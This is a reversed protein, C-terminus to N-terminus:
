NRVRDEGNLLLQRFVFLIIRSWIKFWIFHAINRFVVNSIRRSFKFISNCFSALNPSDIYIKKYWSKHRCWRTHSASPAFATRLSMHLHGRCSYTCIDGLTGVPVPRGSTDLYIFDWLVYESQSTVTETDNSLNQFSINRWAITMYMGMWVKWM